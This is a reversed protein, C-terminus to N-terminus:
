CHARKLAIIWALPHARALIRPRRHDEIVVILVFVKFYEGRRRPASPTPM